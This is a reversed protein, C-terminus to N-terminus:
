RVHRRKGAIDVKPPLASMQFHPPLTQWHGLASMALPTFPGFLWDM